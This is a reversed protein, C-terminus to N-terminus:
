QIVEQIEQYKRQWEQYVTTGKKGASELNKFILDIRKLEKQWKAIFIETKDQHLFPGFKLDIETLSQHGPTALLVEYFHNDERKIVENTIQYNNKTLWERVIYEDTNPQLVMTEFHQGNILGADLIDKILMGGMGAITVTNIKDEEYIAALGNALRAELYNSLNRRIIEQQANEYPGQAVEGAIAYTIKHNLLLHAPLYAHDSGIDALRAGSPVFSAVAELRPSLHISDM